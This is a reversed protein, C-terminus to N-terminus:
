GQEPNGNDFVFKPPPPYPLYQVPESSYYLGGEGYPDHIPDDEIRMGQSDFNHHQNAPDTGRLRRTTAEDAKGYTLTGMTQNDREGGPLMARPHYRDYGFKAWQKGKEFIMWPQVSANVDMGNRFPCEQGFHETHGCTRCSPIDGPKTPPLKVQSIRQPEEKEKGGRPKHEYIADFIGYQGVRKHIVRVEGMCQKIRRIVNYPTDQGQNVEVEGKKREVYDTWLQSPRPLRKELLLALGNMVAPAGGPTALEYRTVAKTIAVLTADEVNENSFQLRFPLAMLVEAIPVGTTSVAGFYRMIIDAAQGITVHNWWDKIQAVSLVTQNIDGYLRLRVMEQAEGVCVEAVQINKRIRAQNQFNAAEEPTITKDLVVLASVLNVEVPPAAARHGSHLQNIDAATQSRVAETSQSDVPIIPNPTPETSAAVPSHIDGVATNGSGFINSTMRRIFPDTEAGLAFPGVSDGLSGSDNNSSGSEHM